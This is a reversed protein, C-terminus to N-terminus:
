TLSFIHPKHLSVCLQIAAMCIVSITTQMQFQHQRRLVRYTAHPPSVNKLEYKSALYYSYILVPLKVLLQLCIGALLGVIFNLDISTIQGFILHWYIGDLLGVIFNLDISAVQGVMLHWYIGDLPDVIFNLDISATQGFIIHWYIGDLLDVIFNLDISAIQGVILHWFISNLRWFYFKLGYHQTAV